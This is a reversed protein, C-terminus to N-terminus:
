IFCGCLICRNRFSSGSVFFNGSVHNNGFRFIRLGFPINNMSGRPVFDPNHLSQSLSDFGHIKNSSNKLHKNGCLVPNNYSAAFFCSNFLFYERPIKQDFHDQIIRSPQCDSGRCSNGSKHTRAIVGSRKGFRFNGIDLLKYAGGGWSVFGLKGNAFSNFNGVPRKAVKKSRNM